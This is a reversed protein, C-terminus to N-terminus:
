RVFLIAGRAVKAKMQAARRSRATEARCTVGPDGHEDKQMSPGSRSSVSGSDEFVSAFSM